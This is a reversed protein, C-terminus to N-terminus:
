DNYFCDVSIWYHNALMFGFYGMRQSRKQLHILGFQGLSQDRTDPLGVLAPRHRIEVDDEFVTNGGLGPVPNSGRHRVKLKAEIFLLKGPVLARSQVADTGM